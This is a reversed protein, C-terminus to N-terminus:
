ESARKSLLHFPHLLKSLPGSCSAEMYREKDVNARREYDIRQDDSLAKWMRGLEQAVQGVKVKRDRGSDNQSIANM